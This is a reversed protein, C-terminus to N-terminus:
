SRTVLTGCLRCSSFREMEINGCLLPVEILYEGKENWQYRYDLKGNCHKSNSIGSLANKLGLTM